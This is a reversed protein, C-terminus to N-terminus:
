MRHLQNAVQRLYLGYCKNGGGSGKSVNQAWTKLNIEHKANKKGKSKFSVFTASTGGPQNNWNVTGCKFSNAVPKM